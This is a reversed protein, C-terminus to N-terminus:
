GADLMDIQDPGGVLLPDGLVIRGDADNDDRSLRVELRLVGVTAVEFPVSQGYRVPSTFVQRGDAWVSVRGSYAPDSEDDVGMTGSLSVTLRNLLYVQAELDTGPSCVLAFLYAAGNVSAEDDSCRQEIPDLSSLYLSSAPGSVTIAVEEPLVSGSAPEIATVTGEASTSEYVVTEVVRVGLDLLTQRIQEAPMGVAAPVTGPVSVFLIVETAASTGGIPDQEVVTGAPLASPADVLSIATDPLGSDVIAQRADVAQLGRVDPLLSRGDTSGRPAAVVEVTTAPLAGPGNISYATWGLGFGAVLAGVVVFIAAASLLRRGRPKGQQPAPPPEGSSEAWSFDTM